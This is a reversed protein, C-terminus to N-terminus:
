CCITLDPLSDQSLHIGKNLRPQVAIVAHMDCWIPRKDATQVGACSIKVDGNFSDSYRSAGAKLKYSGPLGSQLHPDLFWQKHGM